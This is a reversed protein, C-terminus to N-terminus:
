SERGVGNNNEECSTLAFNVNTSIVTRLQVLKVFPYVVWTIHVADFYLIRMDGSLERM